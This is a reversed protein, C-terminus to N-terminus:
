KEDPVGRNAEDETPHQVQRFASKGQQVVEQASKGAEEAAMQARKLAAPGEQQVLRAGEEVVHEAQVMARKMAEPGETQLKEAVQKAKKTGEELAKNLADPGEQQLQQAAHQAQSIAQRVAESDRLQEAKEKARHIGEEAMHGAKDALDQGKHIAAEVAESHRVQDAAEMIRKIMKEIEQTTAQELKDALQRAEAESIALSGQAKWDYGDPPCSELKQASGALDGDEGADKGLQEAESECSSIQQELADLQSQLAAREKELQTKEHLKLGYQANITDGAGRLLIAKVLIQAVPLGMLSDDFKKAKKTVAMEFGKSDVCLTCVWVIIRLLNVFMFMVALICSLRAALVTAWAGCYDPHGSAATHFATIGPVFTWGLVLTFLWVTMMLWLTTGAGVLVNFISHRIGDEVVLAHQLMVSHCVFLERMDSMGLEECKKGEIGQLRAHMDEAKKKLSAKGMHIKVILAAHSVVLIAALLAQVWVWVFITPISCTSGWDVIIAWVCLILIPLLMLSLELVHAILSISLITPSLIGAVLISPSPFNAAVAKHWDLLLMAEEADCAKLIAGATSNLENMFFIKAKTALGKIRADVISHVASGKALKPGVTQAARQLITRILKEYDASEKKPKKAEEEDKLAQERERLEDVEALLLRERDEAEALSLHKADTADDGDVHKQRTTMAM